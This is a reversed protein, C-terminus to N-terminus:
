CGDYNKRGNATLTYTGGRPGTHCTASDQSAIPRHESTSKMETASTPHRFEWPAVPSKDAWLGIKKTRADAQLLPLQTYGKAYQTYTWAMGTRVQFEGVDQGSCKVDAVTRGYRDKSRTTITANQQFCLDSLHQKSASGFPQVKEPADIGALRIKVQEYKGEAGCRATLTDGDQIGVVLCSRQENPISSKAYAGTFLACTAILIITFKSMQM